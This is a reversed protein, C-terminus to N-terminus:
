IDFFAKRKEKPGTLIWNNIFTRTQETINEDNKLIGVLNKAIEHKRDNSLRYHFTDRM